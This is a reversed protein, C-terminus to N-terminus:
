HSGSPKDRNLMKYVAPILFLTLFTSFIMGGVIAVGMGQRSESGAGFSFAIPVAGFITAIATMVIPRFRIVASQFAAEMVSLHETERLQNAYEVILIGNKTVLGILLVIGIQSYVNMSAGAFFLTFIAGSVALPVTMLIIFPHRFSEFQAALVLYVVLLAFVFVYYFAYGADKFEKSEGAYTTQIDVPLKKDAIGQLVKLADGLPMMFPLTSGSITVSRLRNYHNLQNPAVSEKLRVVSALPIMQDDKGKVMITKISDPLNRYQHEAQLM